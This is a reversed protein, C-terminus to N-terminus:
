GSGASAAHWETQIARRHAAPGTGFWRHCSRTLASHETYGLERSLHALNIDTDRLYHEAADRRVGDVLAFFTTGEDALRRQLTKPHMDFQAAIVEINVAGTPLLQRVISRVSQSMGSAGPGILSTLYEVVARHAFEDHNLPCSLDATRMTFGAMPECFRTKCGFYDRYDEAATLPKHPVHVSVPIYQPGLLFRLVKLVVGLSLEISQPCRPRRQLGIRHEFFSREPRESLPAVQVSLVPSYAAIYTSFIRVAAGVTTATRAAVGIPGLIEIGQREALRRGFDPTRTAEAAAEVAQIAGVAPVFADYDGIDQPRIGSTRLLQADDGGLERVLEPYNSLATGRVVVMDASALATPKAAARIVM